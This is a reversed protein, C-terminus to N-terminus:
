QLGPLYASIAFVDYVLAILAAIDNICVPEITLKSMIEGDIIGDMGDYFRANHSVM